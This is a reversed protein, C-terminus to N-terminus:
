LVPKQALSFLGSILSDILLAIFLGFEQASSNWKIARYTGIYVTKPAEINPEDGFSCKM